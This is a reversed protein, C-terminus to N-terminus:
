PNSDLFIGMLVVIGMQLLTSLTEKAVGHFM